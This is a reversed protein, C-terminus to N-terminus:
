MCLARLRARADAQMPQNVFLDRLENWQPHRLNQINIKGFKTLHLWRLGDLGGFVGQQLTTLAPNNNLSLDILKGLGEFAGPELTTLGTNNLHLHRLEHLEEFIGQELTALGTNNLGLVQLKGLGEFVGQELTALAPNHDLGLVQLKGLGEFAGPELTALAPNHDLYLFSLEDGLGEFAGQELTTLGTNNLRRLYYLRKTKLILMLKSSQVSEEGDRQEAAVTGIVYCHQRFFDWDRNFQNGRKFWNWNHEKVGNVTPPTCIANNDRYEIKCEFKHTLVTTDDGIEIFCDIQTHELEVREKLLAAVKRVFAAKHTHYNSAIVTNDLSIVWNEQAQLTLNGGM